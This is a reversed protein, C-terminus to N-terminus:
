FSDVVTSEFEGTYCTFQLPWAALGIGNRFINDYVIGQVEVGFHLGNESISDQGSATPFPLPFAPDEMCIWGRSQTAIAKLQWVRGKIGRNKFATTLERACSACELRGHQQTISVAIAAIDTPSLTSM